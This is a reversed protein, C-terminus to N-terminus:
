IYKKAKYEQITESDFGLAGYVEANHEGLLPACKTPTTPTASMKVPNGTITIKGAVPHEVNVFMERAGRIHPDEVAQKVNYIPAVPIDAAMILEV